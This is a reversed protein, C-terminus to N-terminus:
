EHSWRGKFLGCYADLKGSEFANPFALPTRAEWGRVGPFQMRRSVPTTSSLGAREPASPAGRPQSMM